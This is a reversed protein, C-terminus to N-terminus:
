EIQDSGNQRAFSPYNLLVNTQILMCDDLAHSSHAIDLVIQLVVHYVLSTRGHFFVDSVFKIICRQM